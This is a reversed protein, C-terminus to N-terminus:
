GPSAQGLDAARGADKSRLTKHKWSSLRKVQVALYLAIAILPAFEFRHYEDEFRPPNPESGM